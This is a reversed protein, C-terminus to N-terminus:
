EKPVKRRTKRERNAKRLEETQRESARAMREIAHQLQRLDIEQRRAEGKLNEREIRRTLARGHKDTADPGLRLVQFDDIDRDDPRRLGSVAVRREEIDRILQRVAKDAPVGSRTLRSMFEKIDIALASGGTKEEVQRLFQFAQERVSVDPDLERAKLFANFDQQLQTARFVNTGKFQEEIERQRKVAAEGVPIDRRALSVKKKTENDIDVAQLLEILAIIGKARGRIKGGGLTKAIELLEAEDRKEDPRVKEFVGLMEARILSGIKDDRDRVRRLAEVGRVGEQGHATFREELDRFLNILNTRTTAGEVDGTRAQVGVLLSLVDKLGKEGEFGLGQLNIAGGITNESFQKLNATGGPAAFSAQLITAVNEKQSTGFFDKLAQSQAVVEDRTSKDHFKVLESGDLARKIREKVNPGAGKSAAEQATQLLETPDIGTKQATRQVMREIEPITINAGPPLVTQALQRGFSVQTSIAEQGVKKNLEQQRRVEMLARSVAQFATAIGALQLMTRGATKGMGGFVESTTRGAAKSKSKIKDFQTGVGGLARQMQLWPGIANAEKTTLRFIVDNNAPM